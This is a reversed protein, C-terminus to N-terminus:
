PQFCFFIAEIAATDNRVLTKPPLPMVDVSLGAKLADGGCFTKMLRQRAAPM